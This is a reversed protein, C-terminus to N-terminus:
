FEVVHIVVKLNHQQVKVRNFMLLNKQHDEKRYPIM